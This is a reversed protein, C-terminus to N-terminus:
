WEKVKGDVTDIYTQLARQKEASLSQFEANGIIKRAKPTLEDVAIFDSVSKLNIRWNVRGVYDGMGHSYSKGVFAQILRILGADIAVLAKVFQSVAEQGDPCWRQWSYLISVLNPHESLRGAVAWERIKNCALLELEELQGPNVTRKEEPDPQEKRSTWKGHQQGQVGVEHVVTYISDTANVIANSFLEFRRAQDEYRQGLQYFIRLIRMPTDTEFMGQKGEPFQDGINMLVNVITPIRELPIEERTYDELRELFRVIRGDENLKMLSETFANEDTALGIITEIERQSLEGKPISLRFFTDFVDPSCVRGSRRWSALRDYGYGMNGYISELKPFMRKLFEKLEEKSLLAVRDLIEDCRARAQKSEADRDERYSGNFIGSFVDKNDRIGAYVAPEFVQLATIALFDIPNVENKVMSFAFRLSNVYRTVDRINLFFHRFGSHYINGWYTQDWKGEPIDVILTDLQSFLLAEVEQKSIVPLEFPIQVIKELYEEGSGEQVKQLAKIVVGRDFALLYVTNPFDGLMKVLQFMQRIETSSLRDIDDIVILIKRNQKALLEDLQDRVEKLNKSKLEGWKTAAAGVKKVVEYGAVSLITALGTPDPILALPKFFEAYAELQEGAKKADAGYDQRKLVVSLERFFQTLLQNQDSYNWPNFRIVIPRQDKPLQGSALALHELAINIVSSKGSGWEGFLATVISNKNKYALISDALSFAFASRGLLDDKATDIPQDPRFM